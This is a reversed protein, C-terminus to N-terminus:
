NCRYANLDPKSLILKWYSLFSIFIPVQLKPLVARLTLTLPLPMAKNELRGQKSQDPYSQQNEPRQIDQAIREVNESSM